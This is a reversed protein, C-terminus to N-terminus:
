LILWHCLFVFLLILLYTWSQLLQIWASIGIPYRRQWRFILYLGILGIYPALYIWLVQQQTWSTASAIPSMIDFSIQGEYGSIWAGLFMIALQFALLMVYVVILSFTSRITLNIYKNLGSM